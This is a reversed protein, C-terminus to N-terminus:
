TSDLPSRGKVIAGLTARDAGWYLRKAGLAVARDRAHECLARGMGTGIHEPVMWLHDLECEDGRRVLASFGVTRDDVVAVYVEHRAVYESTPGIV